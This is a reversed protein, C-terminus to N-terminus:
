TRLSPLRRPAERRPAVVAPIELEYPGSGDFRHLKLRLSEEPGKGDLVELLDAPRGMSNGDAEVLIDDPRVEDPAGEGVSRVRLGAGDAPLGAAQLAEPSAAVLTMGSFIVVEQEPGGPTFEFDPIEILLSEAVYIPVKVRLALAMADSPRSDVEFRRGSSRRGVVQGYYTSDRIELVAVHDITAGSAEIMSKLLDHTMPRPPEIGQLALYIAQAEAPGIWIPVIKGSEQERLLVIPSRTFSDFGVSALETQVLREGGPTQLESSCSLFALACHAVLVATLLSKTNATTM